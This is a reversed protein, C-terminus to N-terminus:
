HSCSYSPSWKCSKACLDKESQLIFNRWNKNSDKHWWNAKWISCEIELKIQIKLCIRVRYGGWFFIQNLETNYAVTHSDGASVDTVPIALAADVMLPVNEAGARGLAGEDNCGWTYVKGENSLAVTHMGGCTVKVIRRGALGNDFFPIKKPRKIEPEADDGLGLIFTFV